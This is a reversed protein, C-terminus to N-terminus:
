SSHMLPLAMSIAGVIILLVGAARRLGRRNKWRNLGQASTGALILTPLTGSWFVLMVTGGALPNGSTAALAVASYVLGCPL